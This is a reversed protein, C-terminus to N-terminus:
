STSNEYAFLPAHHTQARWPSNFSIPITFVAFCLFGLMLVRVYISSAAQHRRTDHRRQENPIHKWFGCGRQRTHQGSLRLPKPNIPTLPAHKTREIAFKLRINWTPPNPTTQTYQALVRRCPVYHHAHKWQEIITCVYVYVDMNERWSM